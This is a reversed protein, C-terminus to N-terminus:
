KRRKDSTTIKVPICMEILRSAVRDDYRKGLDSININSTIIMPLNESYRHDILDYVRQRTWSSDLESGLDDICLLPSRAAIDYISEELDTEDIEDKLQNLFRTASIFLPQEAKHKIFGTLCAVALHTKGTGPSGYLFLSNKGDIENTVFAKYWQLCLERALEEQSKGQQVNPVKYNSVTCEKYKEPINALSILGAVQKKKHCECLVAETSNPDIIVGMGKCKQCDRDRYIM